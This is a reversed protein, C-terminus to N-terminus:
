EDTQDNNEIKSISYMLGSNLSQISNTIKDAFANLKGLQQRFEITNEELKMLINQQYKSYHKNCLWRVTGDNDILRNLNNLSNQTSVYTLYTSLNKTNADENDNIILTHLLKEIQVLSQEYKNRNEPNYRRLIHRTLPVM